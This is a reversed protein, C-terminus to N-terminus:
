TQLSQTSLINPNKSTIRPFHSQQTQLPSSTSPIWCSPIVGQPSQLSTLTQIIQHFALLLLILLRNKPPIRHSSTHSSSWTAGNRRWRTRLRKGQLQQRLRWLRMLSKSTINDIFTALLRTSHVLHEFITRNRCHSFPTKLPPFFSLMAIWGQFYIGVCIRMMKKKELFIEKKSHKWWFLLLM